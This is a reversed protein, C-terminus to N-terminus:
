GINLLGPALFIPRSFRLPLCLGGLGLLFFCSGRFIGEWFDFCLTFIGFLSPFFSIFIVAFLNRTVGAGGLFASNVLYAASHTEIVACDVALAPEPSSRHVVGLDLIGLCLTNEESQIWVLTQMAHKCRHRDRIPNSPVEGVVHHVQRVRWCALDKCEVKIRRSARDGVPAHVEIDTLCQLWVAESNIHFSADPTGYVATSFDQADGRGSLNDTLDIEGRTVHGTWGENTSLQEDSGGLVISIIVPQRVRHPISAPEVPNVNSDPAFGLVLKPKLALRQSGHKPAM